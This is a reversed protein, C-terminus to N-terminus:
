LNTKWKEVDERHADPHLQNRLGSLVHSTADTAIIVPGLISPPIQKVVGGVAGTLGKAETEKAAVNYMNSATDKM